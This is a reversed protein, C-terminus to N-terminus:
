SNSGESEEIGGDRQDQLQQLADHYKVLLRDSRGFGLLGFGDLVGMLAAMMLPGVWAGFLFGALVAAWGLDQIENPLREMARVFPWLFYLFCPVAMVLWILNFWAFTKRSHLRKRTREVYEHESLPRYIAVAPFRMTGM